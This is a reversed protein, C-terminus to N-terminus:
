VPITVTEAYLFDLDVGLANAMRTAQKKTPMGQKSEWRFVLRVDVHAAASLDARTWEKAERTAKLGAANFHYM